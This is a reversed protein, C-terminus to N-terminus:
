KRLRAYGALLRGIYADLRSAQFRLPKDKDIRLARTTARILVFAIVDEKAVIRSKTPRKGLAKAQGTKPHLSVRKVVLYAVRANGPRFELKGIRTSLGASEWLAPTLRRRKGGATVMRPVADTPYALWKRQKARITVGNSYADLAGGALSEDGGKAFIVAFPNGTKRGKRKSSTFGVARWLKGLGAARIQAQVTRWAKEGAIDTAEIAARQYDRSLDQAARRWAQSSPKTVGFRLGANM